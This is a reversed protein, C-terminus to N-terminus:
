QHEIVGVVTGDAGLATFTMELIHRHHYSMAIATISAQFISIAILIEAGQDAVFHVATNGAIATFAKVGIICAAGIERSLCGVIMDVKTAM